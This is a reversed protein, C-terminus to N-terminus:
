ERSAWSRVEADWHDAFDEDFVGFWIDDDRFGRDRLYAYIEDRNEGNWGFEYPDGDAYITAVHLFNNSDLKGYCGSINM